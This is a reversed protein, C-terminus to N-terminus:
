RGVRQEVLAYASLLAHRQTARGEAEVSSASARPGGRGRAVRAAVAMDAPTGALGKLGLSVLAPIRRAVVPLGLAQAELITMPSGEWAATHLYVDAQAMRAILEHRPLWGTIEVGLRTLAAEDASEGGGLWTVRADPEAALIDAVARCFFGPDKQASVRGATVYHTPSGPERPEAPAVQGLSVVQPVHVARQVGLRHALEVERPSVGAVVATRPALRKEVSWLARRVPRAIDTREFAYCHPTYVVPPLEAAPGIRAFLGAFSSHAHLVDAKTRRSATRLRRVVEVPKAVSPLEGVPTAGVGEGTDHAERDRSVLLHEVEDSTSSVYERLASVVGGGHAEVVHLVRM